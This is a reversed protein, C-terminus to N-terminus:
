IKVGEPAAPETNLEGRDEGPLAQDFLRHLGGLDIMTCLRVVEQAFDACEPNTLALAAAHRQLNLVKGLRLNERLQRVEIQSLKDCRLVKETAGAEDLRIWELDLQQALVRALASTQLPKLLMGDFDVGEPFGAPRAPPAASILIVPMRACSPSARLARLFAWGDADPMYQDVLALDIPPDARLCVALAENGNNAVKAAFGWHACLQRMFGQNDVLDDVILLTRQRGKHGRILQVAPDHPAPADLRAARLPLTFWFRSGHGPRSRLHIDGGLARVLQRAIALGLGIGPQRRAHRIRCFPAFIREQDEAAIGIGSDEVTFRVRVVGEQSRAQDTDPELLLRIEGLQTFKCSNSILNQLIQLLRQEDTLVSSPLGPSLQISFHNGRQEAQLRASQEVQAVLASISMPEQVLEINKLEGRSFALVDDILRVLQDGGQIIIQLKAAADGSSERALLHAYGLITNLPSRLEHSVESLFTSKALSAEEAQAKAERLERTRAEVAAALREKENVQFRLYHQHASEASSRVSRIDLYLGVSIVLSCAIFGVTILDPMLPLWYLVGFEILSRMVVSVWLIGWALLYLRSYPLRRRVAIVGVAVLALVIGLIIVHFWFLAGLYLMSLIGLALCSWALRNVLRALRPAHRTLDLFAGTFAADCALTVFMVLNRLRYPWLEEGVPFWDMALGDLQFIFFITLVGAAAGLLLGPRRRAEWALLAFMVVILSAGIALYKQAMYRRSHDVYAAPQWVTFNANSQSLGSLRLFLHVQEGADLRLPFLIQRTPLPRSQIPVRAGNDMREVRGDERVLYLISSHQMPFAHELWRTDRTKGPNFLVAHVWWAGQEPYGLGPAPSRPVQFRGNAWARQAAPLDLDGSADFYLSIHGGLAHGGAQNLVLPPAAWASACWFWAFIARLWRHDTM